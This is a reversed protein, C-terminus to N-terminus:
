LGGMIRGFEGSIKTGRPTKWLPRGDLDFESSAIAMLMRAEPTLLDSEGGRKQGEVFARGLLTFEFEEGHEDFDRVVFVFWEYGGPARRVKRVKKGKTTRTGDPCNYGVQVSHGMNGRSATRTSRLKTDGGNPGLQGKLLLCPMLLTKNNRTAIDHRYYATVAGGCVRCTGATDDLRNFTPNGNMDVCKPRSHKGALYGHNKGCGDRAGEMLNSRGQERDHLTFGREGELEAGRMIPRYQGKGYESEVWENHVIASRGALDRLVFPADHKAHAFYAEWAPLTPGVKQARNLRTEAQGTNTVFEQAQGLTESFVGASAFRRADDMTLVTPWVRVELTRKMMEVIRAKLTKLSSGKVGLHRLMRMLGTKSATETMMRDMLSSIFVYSTMVVGLPTNVVDM